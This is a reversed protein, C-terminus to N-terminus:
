DNDELLMQKRAILQQVNGLSAAALTALRLLGTSHLQELQAGRLGALQEMDVVLVDPV